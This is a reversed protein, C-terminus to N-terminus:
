GVAKIRRECRNGIRLVGSVHTPTDAEDLCCSGSALAACTVGVAFEHGTDCAKEVLVIYGPLCPFHTFNILAASSRDRFEEGIQAHFNEVTAYRNQAHMCRHFNNM